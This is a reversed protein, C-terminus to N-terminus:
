LAALSLVHCAMFVTEPFPSCDFQTFCSIAIFRDRPERCQKVCIINLAEGYCLKLRGKSRQAAALHHPHRWGTYKDQLEQKGGPLSKGISDWTEVMKTWFMDDTGDRVAFEKSLLHVRRSRSWELVVWLRSFWTSKLIEAVGDTKEGDSTMPDLIKDLSRVWVDSLYIFTRSATAYITPILTLLAEQVPRRWQPVSVYDHWVEVAFGYKESLAQLTSAINRYCRESATRTSKGDVCAKAIDPHWVHSICFYQVDESQTCKM